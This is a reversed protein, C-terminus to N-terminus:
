RVWHKKKIQEEKEEEINDTMKKAERGMKEVEEEPKNKLNQVEQTLKEETNFSPDEMVKQLLINLVAGVLPGPTVDMIKMVTQGDIKLMSSTIPDQSVKDIIYRLHRLKYPEAKPVGSGIRDAMRVQLLDEINEQGVKRLLRRVSSETVEGVNYYFLHYRVLLSIKEREEKSFKLRKLIGRTMKEGIVEHNYFTSDKGEGRKSRPKGVDHLLAAMRVAFNFNKRTAYELSKVSHEYCDYIHHKNQDIEYGELIEPLFQELLSLERLKEVGEAARSSIIIKILEDRIREASIKQLLPANKKIATETASHINFNLQVSFRVARMMRLADEGIREEPEGVARIIKKQLDEKGKFPDILEGKINLAMANVTFDRRQLDEKIDSVFNVKEPHRQDHYDEETRYTTVQVEQLQKEEAGTLVTVTGFDNNSFSKKFMEQVQEPKANTAVDYDQPTKKLLLDRVCGGVVYAEFDKSTLKELINKVQTPIQKEM